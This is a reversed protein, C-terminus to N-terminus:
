LATAEAGNPHQSYPASAMGLTLDAREQSGINMSVATPFHIIFTILGRSTTGSKGLSIDEIMYLHTEQVLHTWYKEVCSQQMLGLWLIKFLPPVHVGLKTSIPLPFPVLAARAVWSYRQTIVSRRAQLM